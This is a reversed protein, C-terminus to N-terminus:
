NGRKDELRVELTYNGEVRLVSGSAVELVGGISGSSRWWLEGTPVEMTGTSNLPVDVFLRGGNTGM